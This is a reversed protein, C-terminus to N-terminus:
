EKILGRKFLASIDKEELGRLASVRSIFSANSFEGGLIYAIRDTVRNFIDSITQRDSQLIRAVETYNYGDEVARIIDQEMPSLVEKKVMDSICMDISLATTYEDSEIEGRDLIMPLTKIYEGVIWSM